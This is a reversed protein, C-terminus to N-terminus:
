QTGSSYLESITACLRQMVDNADPVVCCFLGTPMMVDTYVRNLNVTGNDGRNRYFTTADSQRPVPTGDPFYWEGTRKEACCPMGDTICQLGTNDAGIETIYILSNNAYVSRRPSLYVGTHLIM